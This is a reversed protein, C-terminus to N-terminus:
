GHQVQQYRTTKREHLLQSIIQVTRKAATGETDALAYRVFKAREKARREPKQMNASLAHHLEEASHVVDVADSSEFGVPDEWKEFDLIVVPVDFIMAELGM